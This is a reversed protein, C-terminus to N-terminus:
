STQMQLGDVTEVIIVGLRGSLAEIADAVAGRVFREESTPYLELLQTLAEVDGHAALAEVGANPVNLRRASIFRLAVERPLLRRAGRIVGLASSIINGYEDERDWKANDSDIGLVIQEILEAARAVGLEHASMLLRLRGGEQKPELDIWMDVLERWATISPHFPVPRLAGSKFSNMEFLSTM